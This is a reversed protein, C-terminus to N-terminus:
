FRGSQYPVLQRSLKSQLQQLHWTSPQSSTQTQCRFTSRGEGGRERRIERKEKGEGRDERKKGGKKSRRGGRGEREERGLGISSTICKGLCEVDAGNNGDHTTDVCKETPGGLPSWTSDEGSVLLWCPFAM